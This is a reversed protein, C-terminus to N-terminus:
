PRSLPKPPLLKAGTNRVILRPGIADKSPRPKAVTPQKLLDDLERATQSDTVSGGSPRTRAATRCSTTEQERRVRPGANETHAPDARDLYALLSARVVRISRRIRRSEIEGSAILRRITRASVSLLAGAEDLTLALPPDAADPRAFLRKM